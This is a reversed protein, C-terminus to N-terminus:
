EDAAPFLARADLFVAVRHGPDAGSHRKDPVVRGREPVVVYGGDGDAGLAAWELNAAEFPDLDASNRLLRLVEERRFRARGRANVAPIQVMQPWDPRGCLELESWFERWPTVAPAPTAGTGWSTQWHPHRHTPHHFRVLVTKKGRDRRNWAALEARLVAAVQATTLVVMWEAFWWQAGSRSFAVEAEHVGAAQAAIRLEGQWSPRPFVYYPQRAFPRQLYEWLQGIDVGM